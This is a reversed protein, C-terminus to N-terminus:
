TCPGRDGRGRLEPLTAIHNCDPERGQRGQRCECSGRLKRPLGVGIEHKARHARVARLLATGFDVREHLDREHQHLRGSLSGVPLQAVPDDTFTVSEVPSLSKCCSHCFWAGPPMRRGSANATSITRNETAGPSTGARRRGHLVRHRSPLGVRPHVSSPKVPVGGADSRSSEGCIRGALQRRCPAGDRRAATPCSAPSRPRVARGSAAASSPRSGGRPRRASAPSRSGSAGPPRSSPCPASSWRASCPAPEPRRLLVSPGAPDSRAGAPGSRCPRGGQLEAPCVTSREAPKVM